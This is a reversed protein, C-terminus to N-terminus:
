EEESTLYVLKDTIIGQKVLYYSTEVQGEDNIEADITLNHVLGVRQGEPTEVLDYRGCYSPNINRAELTTNASKFGGRGLVSLKRSYSARALPNNQNQLQVLASTNFFHRIFNDFDNLNPIKMLDAKKLQSINSLYKNDIDQLFSGLKNDFINYVLDGVRRIIQNELKDKEEEKEIKGLDHYLNIHNSVACILDALDFFTKEEPPIEEMGILSLFNKKNKPSQIKIVYLKHNAHPVTFGALKKNKFSQRLLQFKEGALITNKKLIIKGNEDRLDEVLTQDQLYQFIDIKQSFKRRGLKGIDFYSNKKTFLFQPLSEGIELPKIAQYDEINLDEPNFFQKLLEPSVAFTKLIDLLNISIGKFPIIESYFANQKETAFHYITPARVSQLVVVKEHGNIIFTGQPNIKPLHCFVVKQDQECHFKVTLNDNETKISESLEEKEQLNIQM